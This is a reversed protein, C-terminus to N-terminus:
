WQAVIAMISSIKAKNLHIRLWLVMGFAKPVRGSLGTQRCALVIAM